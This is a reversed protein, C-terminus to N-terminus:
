ASVADENMDIKVVGAMNLIGAGITEVAWSRVQDEKREVYMKIDDLVYFKGLFSPETFAYIVNDPVLEDKITFILPVGGIVADGIASLGNKWIKESLDGGLANRDLKEFEKATSTNMLFSGNNLRRKELFKKLEIFTDRNLGGMLQPSENAGDGAKFHQKFGARGLGDYAGVIYDVLAVFNGDEKTDIDNLSHETIVKRIDHRYTRLEDVSKTFVPTKIKFFEIAGKPGYYFEIDSSVNFPINVAGKHNTELEEFRVPRDHELVRDLQDNTIPTRPMVKGMFGSERVHTRIIDEGAAALKTLSEGDRAGLVQDTLQQNLVPDFSDIM